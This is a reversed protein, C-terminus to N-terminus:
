VCRQDHCDTYGEDGDENSDNQALVGEGEIGPPYQKNLKPCSRRNHGARHCSGCRRVKEIRPEPLGLQIQFEERPVLWRMCAWGTDGAEIVEDGLVHKVATSHVGDAAVILDAMPRCSRATKPRSRAMRPM